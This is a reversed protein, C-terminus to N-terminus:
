ESYFPNKQSKQEFSGRKKPRTLGIGSIFSFLQYFHLPRRSVTTLEKLRNFTAWCRTGEGLLTKASSMEVLIM